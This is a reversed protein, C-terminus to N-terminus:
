GIWVCGITQSAKIIAQYNGHNDYCKFYLKGTKDRGYAYAVLWHNKYSSGLLDAMGVAVPRPKSSSLLKVIALDPILHMHAQFGPIKKLFVNLGHYLDWMFTGRYPMWGDVVEEVGKLLDEKNWDLGYTQLLFDHLLVSVVYTGCIGPQRTNRWSAYPKFRKAELGHWEIEEM